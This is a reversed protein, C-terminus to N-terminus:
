KSTMSSHDKSMPKHNWKPNKEDSPYLRRETMRHPFPTWSFSCSPPYARLKRWLHVRDSDAGVGHRTPFDRFFHTYLRYLFIFSIFPSFSIPLDFLAAWLQGTATLSAPASLPPPPPHGHFHVRKALWSGAKDRATQVGERTLQWTIQRIFGGNTRIRQETIDM